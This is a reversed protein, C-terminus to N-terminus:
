IEQETPMVRILEPCVPYNVEIADVIIKALVDAPIRELKRNAFFTKMEKDHTRLNFDTEISGPEIQIVSIKRSATELRLVKSFGNLAHKSATYVSTNKSAKSGLISSINIIKGQFGIFPLLQSTLLIPALANVRFVEELEKPIINEVKGHYGIGANNILVNFSGGFLQIIKEKFSKIQSIKNLDFPLCMIRGRGKIKKISAATKLLKSKDTGTILVTAGRAYLLKAIERGVGGSAGTLIIKKNLLM